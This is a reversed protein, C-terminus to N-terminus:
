PYMDKSPDSQFYLHNNIFNTVDEKKEPEPVRLLSYVMSAAIAGLIPAIIFIWIDKYVGSVIAPGLSRAPNMSAGTIPGAIIINFLVTVGIAVGALDKSGRQDTAVGCITLMLIFTIIFEWVIAELETTSSSHETLAVRIDAQRNYLVRLTLCALISGMLQCFVYPPVLKFPLKRVTALAITVAPNFHGGSVHGVSYIAVTLALGSAIAVGVITLPQVKSVLAAGCGVFILIYTGLLEAVGKQFISASSEAAHSPRQAQKVKTERIAEEVSLGLRPSSNVTVSLSEAM